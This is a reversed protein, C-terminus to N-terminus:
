YEIFVILFVVSHLSLSLTIISVTCASKAAPTSGTHDRTWTSDMTTEIELASSPEVSTTTGVVIVCVYLSRKLEALLNKRCMLRPSMSECKIWWGIAHKDCPALQRPPHQPSLGAVKDARKVPRFLLTRGSGWPGM